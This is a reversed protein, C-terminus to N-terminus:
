DLDLLDIDLSFESDFIESLDLADPIVDSSAESFELEKNQSVLIFVKVMIQVIISDLSSSKNKRFKHTELDSLLSEFDSLDRDSIDRYDKQLINFLDQASGLSQLYQITAEVGVQVSLSDFFDSVIIQNNEFNEKILSFITDKMILHFLRTKSLDGNTSSVLVVLKEYTQDYHNLKDEIHASYIAWIDDQDELSDFVQQDIDKNIYKPISYKFGLSAIKLNMFFQLMYKWGDEFDFSTSNLRLSNDLGGLFRPLRCYLDVIDNPYLDLPDIDNVRVIGLDKNLNVPKNAFCNTFNISSTIEDLDSLDEEILGLSHLQRLLAVTYSYNNYQLKIINPSIGSVLLGSSYIVKAFEGKNPQNSLGTFKFGKQANCRVNICSACYEYTDIMDESTFSSIVDDGLIRYRDRIPRTDNVENAILYAVYIMVHHSLAFVPFSTLFGQPGGNEFAQHVKLDTMKLPTKMLHLWEDCIEEDEFVLFNLVDRQFVVDMTDTCKELDFSAHWYRDQLTLDKLFKIGKMQDSTCDARLSNKMGSYVINHIYALPRQLVENALGIDRVKYKNQLIGVGSALPADIKYGLKSLKIKDIYEFNDPISIKRNLSEISNLKDENIDADSIFERHAFLKAQIGDLRISEGKPGRLRVGTSSSSIYDDRLEWSRSSERSYYRKLDILDKLLEYDDSYGQHRIERPTMKSMLTVLHKLKDFADRFLNGKSFDKYNKAGDQKFIQGEGSMILLQDRRHRKFQRRGPRCLDVIRAMTMISNAVLTCCKIDGTKSYFKVLLEVCNFLSVYEKPYWDRDLVPRSKGNFYAIIKNRSREEEEVDLVRLEKIYSMIDSLFDSLIDKNSKLKKVFDPVKEAASKDTACDYFKRDFGISFTRLHSIFEDRFEFRDPIWAIASRIFPGYDAIDIYDIGLQTINRVRHDLCIKEARSGIHQHTM